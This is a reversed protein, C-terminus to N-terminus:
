AKILIMYSSVRLNRIGFNWRIFKALIKVWSSHHNHSFENIKLTMKEM